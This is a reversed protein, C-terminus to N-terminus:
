RFMFPRMEERAVESFGRLPDIASGVRALDSLERVSCNPSFYTDVITLMIRDASEITRPSSVIRMRSIMAYLSVLKPIQPESNLLADSYARSAAIIFDRYLDERLGAEHALQRARVHARQSLWTTGGATLGGVVSGVLAAMASVYAVDM